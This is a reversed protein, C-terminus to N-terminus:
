RSVCVCVCVCLIEREETERRKRARNNCPFSEFFFYPLGKCRDEPPLDLDVIYEKLPIMDTHNMGLTKCYGLGECIKGVSRIKLCSSDSSVYIYFNLFASCRANATKLVIFLHYGISSYHLPFFLLAHVTNVKDHPIAFLQKLLEFAKTRKM